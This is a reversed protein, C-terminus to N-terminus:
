LGIIVAHEQSLNEVTHFRKEVFAPQPGDGVASKKCATNRRYNYAGGYICNKVAAPIDSPPQEYQQQM